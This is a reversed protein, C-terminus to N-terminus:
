NDLLLKFKNELQTRIYRKTQLLDYKFLLNNFTKKVNMKKNRFKREKMKDWFISSSYIELSKYDELPINESDLADIINMEDFRKLLYNFMRKLNTKNKLDDIYRIGLPIFEKKNIFKIEFRLINSYRNYQKAKDYVKIYFNSNEYQKYEGKGKFKKHQSHISFKYMLINEAVIEEASKNVDINLGFELQTIDATKLDVLKECLYDIEECLESYTFDNHNQNGKGQRFNKLKHLSNKVYVSKEYVIIDMSELNALYPYIIEGSHYELCVHLDKFNTDSLIFPEILRKDKYQLRIFDIM